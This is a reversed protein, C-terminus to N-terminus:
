RFGGTRVTAGTSERSAGALGDFDVDDFETPRTGETAYLYLTTKVVGQLTQGALFSVLVGVLITGVALLPQIGYIGYGLLFFPIALLFSVVQIAILSIPTEGWTEKFTSASEKFMGTVSTDEFVIVPIVFFTLLTWATGFIAGAFRAVRSDSNEMANIILGITASILAWVFLPRRHDWAAALGAKLSPEEGALAARTQHVLGAAFFSSVFTLVLYVTGLVAYTIADSQVSLAGFTVGLFTGLFALGTAASVLPFLALTPHHNILALADKTLVLGTKLRAVISMCPGTSAM